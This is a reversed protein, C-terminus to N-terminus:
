KNGKIQILGTMDKGNTKCYNKYPCGFKNEKCGTCHFEGNKIGHLTESYQKFISKIASKSVKDISINIPVFPEKRTRYKKPVVIYGEADIKHTINPAQTYTGLQESTKVDYKMTSFKDDFLIVKGNWKDLKPDYNDAKPDQKWRVIKDAYGRIFSGSPEEIKVYQQIALVEDFHPLVQEAYAEIAMDAKYDLWDKPDGETKTWKIKDSKLVDLTGLHTKYKNFRKKFHKKAEDVSGTKALIGFADDMIDGLIFSGKYNDERINLMYHLFYSRPSMQYMSNATYSLKISVQNKKM